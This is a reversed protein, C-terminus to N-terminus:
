ASAKYFIINIELMMPEDKVFYKQKKRKINASVPKPLSPKWWHHPKKILNLHPILAM